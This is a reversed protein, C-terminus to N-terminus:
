LIRVLIQNGNGGVHVHTGPLSCVIAWFVALARFPNVRGALCVALIVLLILPALLLLPIWLRFGRWHPNCVHVVAVNPTM